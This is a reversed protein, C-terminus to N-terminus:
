KKNLDINLSKFKRYLATREMGTFESIKIINGNFWSGFHEGGWVLSREEILYIVGFVPNDNKWLAVSIASPGTNRSFNISGDLPDVIWILNSNNINITNEIEVFAPQEGVSWITHGSWTYTNPAYSYTRGM